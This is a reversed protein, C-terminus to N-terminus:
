NFSDLIWINGDIIQLAYLSNWYSSTFKKKHWKQITIFIYFYLCVLNEIRGSHKGEFYDCQEFIIRTTRKLIGKLPAHHNLKTSNRVRSKPELWSRMIQSVWGVNPSTSVVCLRRPIREKERERGRGQKCERDRERAGDRM